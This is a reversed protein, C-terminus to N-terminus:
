TTISSSFSVSASDMGRQAAKRLFGIVDDGIGTGLHLMPELSAARRFQAVVEPDDGVMDAFMGFWRQALAMAEDSRADPDHQLCARIQMALAIWEDSHSARQRVRAGAM